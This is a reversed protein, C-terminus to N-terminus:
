KNINSSFHCLFLLVSVLYAMLRSNTLLHLHQDLVCVSSVNWKQLYFETCYIYSSQAILINLLRRILKQTNNVKYTFLLYPHIWKEGHVHPWYKYWPVCCSKYFKLYWCQNSTGGGESFIGSHEDCKLCFNSCILM